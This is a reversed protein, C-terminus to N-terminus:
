SRRREIYSHCAGYALFLACYAYFSHWFLGPLETVGAFELAIGPPYVLLMVAMLVLMLLGAAENGIRKDREDEIDVDTGFYIGFAIAYGLYFSVTGTYVLLSEELLSGATILVFWLGVFIGLSWNFWREYRERRHLAAKAADIDTETM